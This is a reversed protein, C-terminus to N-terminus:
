CNAPPTPLPMWHTPTGFEIVAGDYAIWCGNPYDFETSSHQATMVATKSVYEEYDVAILVETGNKPATEIPQWNTM